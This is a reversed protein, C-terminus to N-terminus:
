DGAGLGESEARTKLRRILLFFRGGHMVAAISLGAILGCWFGQPGLGARFGLIWGLPLGVVWYAIGNVLMPIRTDKFGRLLGLSSVQMGDSVQFVAALVILSRATAIVGPDRTYLGALFGPFCALVVAGCAMFGVCVSMGALGIRRIEAVSDRGVAQGVLVTLAFSTGLPVMFTISALNIAIQHGAVANQGLSGIFLAVLAFMSIEMGLSLGNPIGIRLIERMASWDPAMFRVLRFRLHQRAIGIWAMMGLFMILWVLSTAFGTGVAGLRPAGWKGYMLVVDAVINVPIAILSIVLTPRTQSVGEVFFRLVYFALAFPVGLSLAQVYGTSLRAVDPAVGVLDLLRDAQWMLFIGPVALFAALWLGQGVMFGIRDHQGAGYHQAVVPSVGMLVGMLCLTVPFGVSSGVAVAALDRASLRGAMVVDTLGLAMQALQAGILPLALRLVRGMDDKIQMSALGMAGKWIAGLADRLGAPQAVIM